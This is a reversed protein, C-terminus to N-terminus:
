SYGQAIAMTWAEFTKLFVDPISPSHFITSLKEAIEENCEKLLM